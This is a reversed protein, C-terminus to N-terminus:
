DVIPEMVMSTVMLGIEKMTIEEATFIDEKGMLWTIEGIVKM